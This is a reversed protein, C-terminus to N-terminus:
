QQWVTQNWPCYSFDHCFGLRLCRRAEPEGAGRGGGRNQLFDQHPAAIVDDDFVGIFEGLGRRLFFGIEEDQRFLRVTQGPEHGAESGLREPPVEGDDRREGAEAVRQRGLGQAQARIFKEGRGELGLLDQGPDHHDQAQVLLAPQQDGGLGLEGPHEGFVGVGQKIAVALPAVAAEVGGQHLEQIVGWRCLLAGWSM